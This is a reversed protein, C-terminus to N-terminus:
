YSQFDSQSTLTVKHQNRQSRLTLKRIKQACVCAYFGGFSNYQVSHLTCLFRISHSQPIVGAAYWIADVGYWPKVRDCWSRVM